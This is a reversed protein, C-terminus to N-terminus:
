CLIKALMVIASRFEKYNLGWFGENVSDCDLVGQGMLKEYLSLPQISWLIM